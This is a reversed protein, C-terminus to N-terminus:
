GRMSVLVALADELGGVRTVSTRFASLVVRDGVYVVPIGRFLARSMECFMEGGIDRRAIAVLYGARDVDYDNQDIAEALAAESMAALNEEGTAREAWRSTPEFGARRLRAHFMRVVASCSYPAAVYVSAM